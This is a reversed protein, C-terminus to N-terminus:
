RQRQLLSQRQLEQQRQLDLEQQRQLELQLEQQRQLELQLEQQRQLELQLQQEQQQELQQQQEFQQQRLHEQEQAQDPDPSPDPASLPIKMTDTDGATVIPDNPDLKIKFFKDRRVEGHSFWDHTQFQIWAAALLNLTRAPRFTDRALVRISVERPSPELLGPEAEPFTYETPVNRGFREGEAGM